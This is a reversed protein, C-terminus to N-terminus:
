TVEKEHSGSARCDCQSDARAIVLSDTSERCWRLIKWKSFGAAVAGTTTIRSTGVQMVSVYVGDARANLLDEAIICILPVDQGAVNEPLAMTEVVCGARLLGVHVEM